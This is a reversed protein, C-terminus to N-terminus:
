LSSEQENVDMSEHPILSAELAKRSVYMIHNRYCQSSGMYDM